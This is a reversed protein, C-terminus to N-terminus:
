VEPLLHQALVNLPKISDQECVCVTIVKGAKVVDPCVVVQLRAVHRDVSPRVGKCAHLHLEVIGEGLKLIGADRLKRKMFDVSSFELHRTKIYKGKGNQVM